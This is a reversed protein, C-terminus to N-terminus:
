DADRPDLLGSPQPRVTASVTHIALESPRALLGHLARQFAAFAPSAYHADLSAQDRWESVLVFDDEDVVSAAVSSRLCGAQGATAREHERLLEVLETRRGALGHMDAVAVIAM